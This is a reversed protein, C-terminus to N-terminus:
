DGSIPKQDAIVAALADDGPHPGVIAKLTYKGILVTGAPEIPFKERFGAVKTFAGPAPDPFASLAVPGHIADVRFGGSQLVHGM